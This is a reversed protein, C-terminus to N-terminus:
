FPPPYVLPIACANRHKFAFVLIYIFGFLYALAAWAVKPLLALGQQTSCNWSLWTAFISVANSLVALALTSVGSEFAREGRQWRSTYEPAMTAVLLDM